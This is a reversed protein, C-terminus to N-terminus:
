HNLDVSTHADTRVGRTEVNEVLTSGHIEQRGLADVSHIRSYM